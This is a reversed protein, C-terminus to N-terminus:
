LWMSKFYLDYVDSKTAFKVSQLSNWSDLCLNQIQLERHEWTQLRLLLLLFLIWPSTRMSFIVTRQVEMPLRLSWAMAPPPSPVTPPWLSFFCLRSAWRERRRIHGQWLRLAVWWCGVLTYCESVESFTFCFVHIWFSVNRSIDCTWKNQHPTLIVMQELDLGFLFMFWPCRRMSLDVKM